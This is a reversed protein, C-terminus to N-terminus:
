ADHENNKASRARVTMRPAPTVDFLNRMLRPTLGLARYKDPEAAMEGAMSELRDTRVVEITEILDNLLPSEPMRRRLIDVADQRLTTKEGASISVSGYDTGASRNGTNPDLAGKTETYTQLKVRLKEMRAKAEDATKKAELYESLIREFEARTMGPKKPLPM